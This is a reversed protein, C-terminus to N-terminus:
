GTPFIKKLYNPLVCFTLSIYFVSALLYPSTGFILYYIQDNCNKPIIYVNRIFATQKFYFIYQVTASM